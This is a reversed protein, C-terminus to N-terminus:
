VDSLVEMCEIVTKLNDITSSVAVRLVRNSVGSFSCVFINDNTTFETKLEDVKLIPDPALTNQAITAQEKTEFPINLTIQFPFSM